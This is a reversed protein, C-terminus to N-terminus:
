QTGTDGGWHPKVPVKVSVEVLDLERVSAPSGRLGRPPVQERRSGGAGEQEAGSEASAATDQCGDCQHSM